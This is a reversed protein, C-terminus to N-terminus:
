SSSGGKAFSVCTIDVLQSFEDSLDQFDTKWWLLGVEMTPCSEQVTLLREVEMSWMFM